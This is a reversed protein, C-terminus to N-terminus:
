RVRRLCLELSKGGMQGTQKAPPNTYIKISEYRLVPTLQWDRDSGGCLVYQTSEGGPEIDMFKTDSM